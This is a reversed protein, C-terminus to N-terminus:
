IQASNGCYVLCREADFKVWESTCIWAKCTSMSHNCRHCALIQFSTDIQTMAEMTEMASGVAHEHAVLMQTALFM